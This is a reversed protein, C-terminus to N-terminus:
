KQQQHRKMCRRVDLRISPKYIRQYQPYENKDVTVQEKQHTANNRVNIPVITPAIRQNSQSPHFSTNDYVHDHSMSHLMENENNYEIDKLTFTVVSQSKKLQDITSKPTSVLHVNDGVIENIVINKMQRTYQTNHKNPPINNVINHIDHTRIHENNSMDNNDKNSVVNNMKNNVDNSVDNNGDDVVNGEVDFKVKKLWKMTANCIECVLSDSRKMGKVCENSLEYKGWRKWYRSSNIPLNTFRRLVLCEM